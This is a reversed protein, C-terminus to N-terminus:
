QRVMILKVTHCLTIIDDTIYRRGFKRRSKPHGERTYRDSRIIRFDIM